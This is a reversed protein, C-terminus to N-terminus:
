SEGGFEVLYRDLDRAYATNPFEKKIRDLMEVAKAKKGARAYNHAAYFLDDPAQLASMYKSAAKEYLVAADEHEGKAEHCAAEGAIAASALLKDSVNVDSYYRLAKDYDKLNFYCDALYLKAMEGSPTSGYDDVISQLGRINEQPIGDVALKYQGQDYVQYVKALDTTARQNNQSRNNSWFWGVLALIVPVAVIYSVLRRNEDVWRRSEFYFTVLKDEKIEKKS